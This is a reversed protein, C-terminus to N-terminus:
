QPLPMGCSRCFKDGPDFRAGCAACRMQDSEAAGEAQATAEKETAAEVSPSQEDKSGAAEEAGAAAVVGAAAVAGAPPAGAPPQAPQGYGAAYPPPGPAYGPPYAAPYAGPRGWVPPGEMRRKLDSMKLWYIIWCVVGALPLVWGIFPIWGIFVAAIWLIGATLGVNYGLDGDPVWGRAEFEAALSDRVKIVTYIFWGLHFLPIFNLWVQGPSMRRNSPSIENLLNQLNLLFFFWPLLFLGFLIVLGVGAVWSWGYLLQGTGGNM